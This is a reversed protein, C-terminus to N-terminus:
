IRAPIKKKFLSLVILTLMGVLSIVESLRWYWPEKYTIFIRGDYSAPISIKIKNNTGTEVKYSINNEDTVNYNPYNFRPIELWSEADAKVSLIMNLGKENLITAKANHANIVYDLSNIDTDMLLYETAGLASVGEFYTYQPLEATDTFHTQPVSDEFQSVFVCSMVLGVCCILFFIKEDFYKHQMGNKIIFGFLIMLFVMAFGIYRWPFQIQALANGIKSTRALVNWPFLDSAMLLVIMSLISLITINNDAKKSVTLCIGCILGIMLLLGPSLQMRETVVSSNQGFYNRFIAFYDSIYAGGYQILTTNGSSQKILIDSHLYYDLFPIIFALGCIGWIGISFFYVKITQKRMTKKWFVVALISLIVIAMETSLIHTYLLGLMGGALILANKQYNKDTIDDVYINWVALALIPLFILATYEGVATRVYIDVLRYNATVYAMASILALKQNKMIKVCCVYCSVTTLLNVTFIYIKYAGTVTFGIIRLLAPIYLLIDGYFVSAPYGYGDNFTTYNRVPFQGTKLGEAIGEIRALHFAYDHGFGIGDMFLVISPLLSIGLISLLVLKKNRIQESIIWIDICLSLLCWLFLLVNINYNNEQVTIDSVVLSSNGNFNVFRIELDDINQMAYFDYSVKEKNKSLNFTNGNLFAHMTNSFIQCSLQEECKYEVSLTYSGADIHTYPGWLIIMNESDITSELSNTTWKDDDYLMYDSQFDAMDINIFSPNIFKHISYILLGLAIVIELSFLIANKRSIIIHKEEKNM